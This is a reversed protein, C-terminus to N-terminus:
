VKKKNLVVLATGMAAASLCCLATYLDISSNDGTKPTPSPEQRTNTVTFNYGDQTIKVSYNAPVKEETIRWEHEASLEKWIYEWNNENSLKVTECVVDDKLLQVYVYAPRSVRHTSDHWVKRVYIDCKESPDIPEKNYKVTLDRHDGANLLIVFATPIYRCEEVDYSEGLVLYLGAALSSFELHGASDTKGSDTCALSDRVTYSELTSALSRQAEATSIDWTISYDKYVSTPSFIGESYTAAHYISFNVGPLIYSISLSATDDAYATIPSLVIAAALVLLQFFSYLRKIRIKM